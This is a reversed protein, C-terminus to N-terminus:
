KMYQDSVQDRSLQPKRRGRLRAPPCHKNEQLTQARPGTQFSRYRDADRGVPPRCPPRGSRLDPKSVSAVGRLTCDSRDSPMPLHRHPGKGHPCAQDGLATALGFTGPSTAILTFSPLKLLYARGSLRAGSLHTGLTHGEPGARYTVILIGSRGAISFANM